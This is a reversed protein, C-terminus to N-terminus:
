VVARLSLHLGLLLSAAFFCIRFMAAPVRGRVWQGLAMGALAPALAALSAGAASMHLAGDHVLV